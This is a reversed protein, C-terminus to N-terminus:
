KGLKDMRERITELLATFSDAFKKVGEEELEQTVQDLDIRLDALDALHQRANELGQDITKEATGHDQFADLTKHPVTNITGPGVMEEIYKVDSYDPNKTSTSAWLVRQRRAGQQKLAQFRTNQDAFTEQYDAYALKGSAVAITGLLSQATSKKEDEAQEIIEGLRQDVKTDIRSIFFSAVSAIGDVPGGREVRKELGSLYAERVEGYRDLGFILTVNINIGEAISEAIAPLGEKTAPIKVMLNPRDVTKWLRKAEAITGATDTALYPSVELSVYGDAGNSEQYLDQFADAAMQIDKVALAEYIQERSLGQATLKSIDEAYLDSQGIAKNFISPNSTVGRIQGREIMEKLTGDLLLERHINDYWISQGLELLKKIQKAM